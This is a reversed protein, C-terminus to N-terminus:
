AGEKDSGNKNNIPWYIFAEAGMLDYVDVTGKTKEQVLLAQTPLWKTKGKIKNNLSQPSLNIEQCFERQSIKNKKLYTLLQM